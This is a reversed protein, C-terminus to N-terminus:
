RANVCTELDSAVAPGHETTAWYHIENLWAVLTSLHVSILQNGQALRTAVLNVGPGCDPRDGNNQGRQSQYQHSGSRSLPSPPRRDCRPRRKQDQSNGTSPRLPPASLLDTTTAASTASAPRPVHSSISVSQASCKSKSRSRARHSDVLRFSWIAFEDPTLLAAFFCLDSSLPRGQSGVHHARLAARSELARAAGATLDPHRAALALNASEAHLAVVLYPYLMRLDPHMTAYPMACRLQEPIDDAHLWYTVVPAIPNPLSPTGHDSTRQQPTYPGKAFAQSFTPSRRSVLRWHHQDNHQRQDDHGPSRSPLTTTVPHSRLIYRLIMMEIMEDGAKQVLSSEMENRFENAVSESIYVRGLVGSLTHNGDSDGNGEGEDQNDPSEAPTIALPSIRDSSSIKLKNNKGDEGHGHGNHEGHPKEDYSVYCPTPSSM